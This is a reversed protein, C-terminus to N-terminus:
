MSSWLIYWLGDVSAVPTATPYRRGKSFSWIFTFVFISFVVFYAHCKTRDVMIMTDQTNVRTKSVGKGWGVGEFVFIGVELLFLNAM